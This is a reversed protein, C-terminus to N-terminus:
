LQLNVRRARKWVLFATFAPAFMLTGEIVMVIWGQSMVAFGILQILALWVILSVLFTITALVNRIARSKVGHNTLVLDATAFAPCIWMSLLWGM